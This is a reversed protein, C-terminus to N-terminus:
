HSWQSISDLSIRGGVYLARKSLFPMLSAHLVASIKSQWLHHGLCTGSSAAFMGRIIGLCAGPMSWIIGWVHGLNHGLHHGLCVGPQVQSQRPRSCVAVSQSLRKQIYMETLM